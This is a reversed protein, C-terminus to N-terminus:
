SSPRYIDRIIKRLSPDSVDPIARDDSPLEGSEKKRRIDEWMAVIGDWASRSEPGLLRYFPVVDLQAWRIAKELDEIVGVVLLEHDSEYTRDTLLEELEAFFRQLWDRDAVVYADVVIQALAAAQMYFLPNSPDVDMRDLREQQWKARLHPCCSLLRLISANIGAGSDM